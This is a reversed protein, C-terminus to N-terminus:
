RGAGDARRRAGRRRLARRRRVARRRASPPARLDAHLASRVLCREPWVDSRGRVRSLIAQQLRSRECLETARGTHRRRRRADVVCPLLESVFATFLAGGACAIAVVGATHGVFTVISKAGVAAGDQRLCRGHSPTQFRFAVFSRACQADLSQRHRRRRRQVLTRQPRLHRQARRAPWVDGDAAM